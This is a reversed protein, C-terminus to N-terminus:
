HVTDSRAYVNVGASPMGHRWCINVLQAIRVLRSAPRSIGDAAGAALPAAGTLTKIKPPVCTRTHVGLRALVAADNIAIVPAANGDNGRTAELGILEQMTCDRVVIRARLQLGALLQGVNRSTGLIQRWTTGSAAPPGM